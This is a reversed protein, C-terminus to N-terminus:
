RSEIRVEAKREGAVTGLARLDIRPEPVGRLRLQRRVAEARLRSLRKNAAQSGTRDAHGEIIVRPGNTRWGALAAITDVARRSAADLTASGVAFTVRLTAPEVAGASKAAAAQAEEAADLAALKREMEARLRAWSEDEPAKEDAAVVPAAAEKVAPAEAVPKPEAVVPEAPEVAPPEDVAPEVRRAVSEEPTPPQSADPRADPEPPSLEWSPLEAAVVVEDLDPCGDEDDVGDLDEGDRPCRDQADALGDGDSDPCGQARETGFEDPCKDEAGALEDGDPDPCGRTVGPGPVSPCHDRRDPVDDGDSDQSPCGGDAMLGVREPCRDAADALGDHDNDPDPCGDADEFGDKDEPLRPCEDDEDAVGDGDRDPLAPPLPAWSLGLVARADPTGVGKLLGAGALGFLNFGGGVPLSAGALLETPLTSRDAGPSTLAVAGSVSAQAALPFGVVSKLDYGAALRWTAEPGVGVDGRVLEPRLRAGANIAVQLADFRRSAAVEPAFVFTGDGLLQDGPLATPLTVAPVLALDVGHAASSLWQWKPVLRVDGLGGGLFPLGQTPSQVGGVQLLTVPVDLGVAWGSGLTWGGTLHAGLRHDVINGVRSRLGDVTDYAALPGASYSLWLSLQQDGAQGAGGSEADLIAGPTVGPRLREVAYTPAQQAWAATPLTCLAVLLLSSRRGSLPRLARDHSM